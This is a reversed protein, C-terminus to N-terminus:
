FFSAYVVALCLLFLVLSFFRSFFGPKRVFAWLCLLPAGLATGLRTPTVAEPKFKTVIPDALILAALCIIALLYILFNSRAPHARKPEFAQANSGHRQGCHFCYNDAALIETNCVGCTRYRDEENEATIETIPEEPPPPKQFMRKIAGWIAPPPPLDERAILERGAGSQLSGPAVLEARAVVVPLAAQSSRATDGESREEKIHFGEQASARTEGVFPIPEDDDHGHRPAPLAQIVRGRTPEVIPAELLKGEKKEEILRSPDSWIPPREPLPLGPGASIVAKEIHITPQAAADAPRARGDLFEGCHVCKIAKSRIPEDCYPCRRDPRITRRTSSACYWCKLAQPGVHRGCQHCYNVQVM